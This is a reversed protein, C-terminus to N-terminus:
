RLPVDQTETLEFGRLDRREEPEDGGHLLHKALDVSRHRQELM